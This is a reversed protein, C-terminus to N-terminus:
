GDAGAAVLGPLHQTAAASEGQGARGGLQAVIAHARRLRELTQRPLHHEPQLVVVPAARRRMEGLEDDGAQV